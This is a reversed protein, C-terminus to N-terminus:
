VLCTAHDPRSGVNNSSMTGGTMSVYARLRKVLPTQQQFETEDVHLFHMGRCKYRLYGNSFHAAVECPRVQYLPQRPYLLKLSFEFFFSSSLLTFAFSAVWPVIKWIKEM